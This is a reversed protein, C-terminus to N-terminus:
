RTIRVRSVPIGNAEAYQRKAAAVNERRVKEDAKAQLYAVVRVFPEADDGSEAGYLALWQIATELDSVSPASITEGDADCLYTDVTDDDASIPTPWDLRYTTM